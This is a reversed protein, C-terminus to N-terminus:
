TIYIVFLRFSVSQTEQINQQPFHSTDSMVHTCSLLKFCNKSHIFLKLAHYTEHFTERELNARKRKEKVSTIFWVSCLFHLKENLIEGTFTVLYETEQPNSLSCFLLLVLVRRDSKFIDDKHKQKKKNTKKSVTIKLLINERQTKSLYVNVTTLNSQIRGVLFAKGNHTIKLVNSM